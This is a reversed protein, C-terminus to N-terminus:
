KFLENLFNADDNNVPVPVSFSTAGTSSSQLMGVYGLAHPHTLFYAVYKSLDRVGHRECFSSVTECSSVYKPCTDQTTNESGCHVCRQNLQTAMIDQAPWREQPDLLRLATAQNVRLETQYRTLTQLFQELRQITEQSM